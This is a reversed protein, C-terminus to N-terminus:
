VHDLAVLVTESLALRHPFFVGLGCIGPACSVFSHGGGRCGTGGADREVRCSQLESRGRASSKVNLVTCVWKASLRQACGGCVSWRPDLVGSIYHGQHTPTSPTRTRIRSPM